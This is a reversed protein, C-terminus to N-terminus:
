YGTRDDGFWHTQYRQRNQRSGPVVDSPQQESAPL